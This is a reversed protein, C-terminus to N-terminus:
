LYQLADSFAQVTYMKKLSLCSSFIDLIFLLDHISSEDIIISSVGIEHSSTVSAGREAM